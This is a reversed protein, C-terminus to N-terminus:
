KASAPLITKVASTYDALFKEPAGALIHHFNKMVVPILESLEQEEQQTFDELVYDSVLERAGPHGVGFRFRHYLRGLRESIDKLGNHGAEGGGNKIKAHGFPLDIEDHLVLINEITIKEQAKAMASQLAQGSLNMYALPKILTLPYRANNHIIEGQAVVVQWKAFLQWPSFHGALQIADLLRFGINHRNRAYGAGPNGLGVLWKIQTKMEMTKQTTM